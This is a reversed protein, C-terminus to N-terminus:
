LLVEENIHWRVVDITAIKESVNEELKCSKFELNGMSSNRKSRTIVEFYKSNLIIIVDKTTLFNYREM